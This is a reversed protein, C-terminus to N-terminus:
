IGQWSATQSPTIQAKSSFGSNSNSFFSLSVTIKSVKVAEDDSHRGLWNVLTHHHRKSKSVHHHLQPPTFPLPDNDAFNVVMTDKTKGGDDVSEGKQKQLNM